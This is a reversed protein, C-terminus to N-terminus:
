IWIGRGKHRSSLFAKIDTVRPVRASLPDDRIKQKQKVVYLEKNNFNKKM